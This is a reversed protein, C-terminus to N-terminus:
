LGVMALYNKAREEAQKQSIGLVTRPGVTCNKLVNMNNFLNFSQFVMGVKKRYENPNKASVINQGNVLIEGLTPNELLNICRLLTSKGSGSPGIICTVDGKNVTFNVDKLVQHEGFAKQFHRIEIIKEAM